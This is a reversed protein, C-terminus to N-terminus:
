EVADQSFVLNEGSWIMVPKVVEVCANIDDVYRKYLAVNLKAKKIGELLKEDWWCMFIKAVVGTIDLGIPGGKEQMKIDGNFRYCHKHLLIELAIKFAECIMIRMKVEDPVEKRKEWLRFRKIKNTEVGSSTIRPKPGRATEERYPCCTDIGLSKLYFNSRNLSLYLGLEESDIGEFTIGSRFIQECVVQITFPIDLSPYLAKVDASGICRDIRTDEEKMNSNSETIAALMDETSECATSKNKDVEKLM